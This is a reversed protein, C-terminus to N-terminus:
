NITNVSQSWSALISARKNFFVLLTKGAYCLVACFLKHTFAEISIFQTVLAAWGVGDWHLAHTFARNLNLTEHEQCMKTSTVNNLATESRKDFRM